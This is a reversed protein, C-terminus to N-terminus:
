GTRGFGQKEWVQIIKCCAHAMPSPRMVRFNLCCVQQTLRLIWYILSRLMCKIETSVDRLRLLNFVSMKEARRELQARVEGKKERGCEEFESSTGSYLNYCIDSKAPCRRLRERESGWYNERWCVLYVGLPSFFFHWLVKIVTPTAASFDFLSFHQEIWAM